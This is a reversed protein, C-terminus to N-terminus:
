YGIRMPTWTGGRVLESLLDHTRTPCARGAAAPVCVLVADIHDPRLGSLMLGQQGGMSGGTTTGDWDPQSLLYDLARSVFRIM